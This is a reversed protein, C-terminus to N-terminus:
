EIIDLATVQVLRIISYLDARPAYYTVIDQEIVLMDPNRVEYTHGSAVLIRFAKFPEAALLKRLEERV